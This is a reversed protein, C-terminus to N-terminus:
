PRPTASYRQAPAKELEPRSLGKGFMALAFDVLESESGAAFPNYKLEDTVQPLGM